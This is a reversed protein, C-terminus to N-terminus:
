GRGLVYDAKKLTKAISSEQSFYMNGEPMTFVGVSEERHEANYINNYKKWGETEEFTASSLGTDAFACMGIVTVSAPITIETLNECYRFAYNGIKTLSSVGDFTVSSLYECNFFASNGMATLTSPLTVSALNCYSFAYSMIRTVGSPIVVVSSYVIGCPYAILVTEDKSYLVGNIAKYKTNNNDVVFKTIKKLHLYSFPNEEETNRNNKGYEGIDVINASIKLTTCRASDLAEYAIKTITNDGLTDPIVLLELSTGASTLDTITDNEWVFVDEAPLTMQLENGGDGGDNDGSDPTEGCAFLTFCSILVMFCIAFMKLLKKFKEKM